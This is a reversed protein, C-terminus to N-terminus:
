AVGRLEVAILEADNDADDTGNTGNADRSIKLRFLDGAVVSDITTLAIATSTPIGTTGNVAGSAFAVTDFSDSDLDTNSRELSAEWIVNGTTVTTAMWKIIVSVGGTLVAGEPMIGVFVASEDTTKDFDLVAISNRTDLTAYNASPPQGDLATWRALTLSGGGGGAPTAWNGQGNMFETSVNSLKKLLGHASTSANLDTNDDPAACDDLKPVAHVHDRRAAVTASGTAAASALAAPTTADFLAKNTYATEGNGIGAFNILGAAPATAKVLLGHATTSANLDTNDDPAALDDLKIPDSGGSQHSSAHAAPAGGAAIDRWTMPSDDTLEFIAEPSLVKCFKGVDTAAVTLADRATNDAVSWNCVVHIYGATLNQHLAM